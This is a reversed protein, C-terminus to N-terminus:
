LVPSATRERTRNSLLWITLLMMISRAMPSGKVTSKTKLKNYFRVFHEISTFNPLTLLSVVSGGNAFQHKASITNSATIFPEWAAEYRPDANRLSGYAGTTTWLAFGGATTEASYFWTLQLSLYLSLDLESSM